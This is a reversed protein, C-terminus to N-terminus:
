GRSWSHPVPSAKGSGGRGPLKALARTAAPPDIGPAEPRLHRRAPRIPARGWTVRLAPAESTVTQGIATAIGALSLLFSFPPSRGSSFRMCDEEATGVAPPQVAAPPLWSEAVYDYRRPSGATLLIKRRAPSAPLDGPGACGPFGLGPWSTLEVPVRVLGAAGGGAGTIRELRPQFWWRRRREM